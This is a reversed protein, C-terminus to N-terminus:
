YKPYEGFLELYKEKYINSAEELTSFYGLQYIKKDKQIKVRWPKNKRSKVFYCGAPKKTNYNKSHSQNENKSVLELNEVTNNSKDLDIHNIEFGKPIELNLIDTVILKHIYKIKSKGEKKLNVYYYGSKNINQELLIPKNHNKYSKIEGITSIKYDPYEQIDFWKIPHNSIIKKNKM